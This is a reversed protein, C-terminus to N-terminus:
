AKIDVRSGLHSVGGQVGAGQHLLKQAQRDGSSAEKLTTSPSETAEQVAASVAKIVAAAANGKAQAATVGGGSSARAAGQGQTVVQVPASVSQIGM